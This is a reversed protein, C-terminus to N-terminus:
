TASALKSLNCLVPAGDVGGARAVRQWYHSHRKNAESVARCARKEAAADRDILAQRLRELAYATENGLAWSTPDRNRDLLAQLKPFQKKAQALWERASVDHDMYSELIPWSGDLFLLSDREAFVTPEQIRLDGLSIQENESIPRTATKGRLQSIDTAAGDVYSGLPVQVEKLLGDQILDDMSQGARINQTTVLVPGMGPDAWDEPCNDSKASNHCDLILVLATATVALVVGGILLRKWAM